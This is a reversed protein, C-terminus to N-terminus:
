YVGAVVAGGGGALWLLAELAMDKAGIPGNTRELLLTLSFYIVCELALGTMYGGSM